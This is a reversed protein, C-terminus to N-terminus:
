PGSMFPVYPRVSPRVLRRSYAGGFNKPSCLLGDRSTCFHHVKSMQQHLSQTEKILDELRGAMKDREETLQKERLASSAQNVFVPMDLQHPIFSDKRWKYYIYIKLFM